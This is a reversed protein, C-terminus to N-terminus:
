IQRRFGPLRCRKTWKAYRRPALYMPGFLAAFMIAQALISLPTFRDSLAAGLMAAVALAAGFGLWRRM